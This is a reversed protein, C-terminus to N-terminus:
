RHAGPVWPVDAAGNDNLVRALVFLHDSLRNVYRQIAPNLGDVGALAREARRVVVRAMHAQAAGPLGGPLVFSTLPSLDANM